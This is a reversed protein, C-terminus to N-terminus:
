NKRFKEKVYYTFAWSKYLKYPVHAINIVFNIKERKKKQKQNNKTERQRVPKHSSPSENEM